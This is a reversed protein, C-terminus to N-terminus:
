ILPAMNGQISNIEEYISIKAKAVKTKNNQGNPIFRQVKNGQQPKKQM